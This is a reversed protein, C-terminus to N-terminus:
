GGSSTRSRKSCRPLLYPPYSPPSTARRSARWGGAPTDRGVGRGGGHGWWAGGGREAEQGAGRARHAGPRRPAARRHGGRPLHVRRRAASHGGAGAQGVGRVEGAGRRRVHLGGPQGGRDTHTHKLPPPPPRPTPTPSPPLPRPHLPLRLPPARGQVGGQGAPPQVQVDQAPRGRVAGGEAGRDADGGAVPQHPHRAHVQAPLSPSPLPSFTTDPAACQGWGGGGGGARVQVRLLLSADM